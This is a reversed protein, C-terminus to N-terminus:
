CHMFIEKKNCAQWYKNNTTKKIIAMKVSTFCYRMITKPQMERMVSSISCRKIHRNAIQIDKYFHRNLDETWRKIPNNVKKQNQTIHTRQYFEGTFSNPRESKNTPLNKKTQKHKLIVSETESSTIWRNM